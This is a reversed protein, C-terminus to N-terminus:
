LSASSKFGLIWERYIKRQQADTPIFHSGNHYSFKPCEFLTALAESKEKAVWTDNEGIVNLCPIKLKGGPIRQINRFHEPSRTQPGSFLMLFRPLSVPSDGHLNMLEIEVSLLTAMTAGQSFGLIGDFPGQTKLM